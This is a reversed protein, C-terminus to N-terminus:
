DSSATMARREDAVRQDEAQQAALAALRDAEMAAASQVIVKRENCRCGM